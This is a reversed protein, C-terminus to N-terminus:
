NLRAGKGGAAFQIRFFGSSVTPPIRARINWLQYGSSNAGLMHKRTESIIVDYERLVFGILIINAWIFYSFAILLFCFISVLAIFRASEFNKIDKTLTIFFGTSALIVTAFFSLYKTRTEEMHRFHLWAQTIEALLYADSKEKVKMTNTKISVHFALAARAKEM